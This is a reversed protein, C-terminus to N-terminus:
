AKNEGFFLFIYFTRRSCSLYASLPSVFLIRNALIRFHVFYFSFAFFYKGTFGSCVFVRLTKDGEPCARHVQGKLIKIMRDDFSLRTQERTLPRAVTPTLVPSVTLKRFNELVDYDKTEIRTLDFMKKEPYPPEEKQPILNGNLTVQKEIVKSEETLNDELGNELVTKKSESIDPLEVYGNSLQAPPEETENPKQM